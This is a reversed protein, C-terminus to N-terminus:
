RCVHAFHVGAELADEGDEVDEERHTIVTLFPRRIRQSWGPDTSNFTRLAQKGTGTRGFCLM